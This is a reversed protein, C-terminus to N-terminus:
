CQHVCFSYSLRVDLNRLLPHLPPGASRMHDPQSSTSHPRRAPHSGCGPQSLMFVISYVDTLSDRNASASRAKCSRTIFDKVPSHNTHRPRPISGNSPVSVKVRAWPIGARRVSPRLPAWARGRSLGTVAVVALLSALHQVGAPCPSLLDPKPALLLAVHM